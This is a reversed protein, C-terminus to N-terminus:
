NSLNVSDKQDIYKFDYYFKLVYLGTKALLGTKANEPPELSMVPGSKKECVFKNQFM